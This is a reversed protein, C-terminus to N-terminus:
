FKTDKCISNYSFMKRDFHAIFSYVVNNGLKKFSTKLNNQPNASVGIDFIQISELKFSLTLKRIYRIYCYNSRQFRIEPTMDTM